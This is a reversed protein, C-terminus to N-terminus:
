NEQLEFAGIDCASGTRPEGRQDTQMECDEPSVIDIALSDPLLAHTLTSGGNDALPALEPDGSFDANCSGDGIWNNLNVIIKGTGQVGGEGGFVCDGGGYNKAIITNELVLENRMWLAGGKAKVSNGTITCNAIRATGGAAIGGGFVAASNGSITTNLIESTCGCGTRIGGGLGESRIGAQNNIVASNIIRLDGTSCKVGGGGGCQEGRPGDGRAVNESITSSIITLSGVSSSVGGGGDASNDTILCNRILLNGFNMIGGGHDTKVSPEGHRITMNEIIVNVDEPIFFVRDPTNELTENAQVITANAGLGRITVNKSVNIGPETHLPATVEIVSGIPVSDSDIAAQITNFNCGSACVTFDAVAPTTDPFPTFTPVLIPTETPMPVPTPEETPNVHAKQTATAQLPTLTATVNQATDVANGCASTLLAIVLCLGWFKKM